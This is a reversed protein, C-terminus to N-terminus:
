IRNRYGADRVQDPSAVFMDHLTVPFRGGFSVPRNGQMMLSTKTALVLPLNVHWAGFAGVFRLTKLEGNM